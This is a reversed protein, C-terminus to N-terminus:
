RAGATGLSRAFDPPRVCRVHHERAAIGNRAPMRDAAHELDILSGDAFCGARTRGCVDSEPIGNAAEVRVGGLRAHTSEGGAAKGEVGRAAAARGAFALSHLANFHTEQRIHLHKAVFAAAFAEIRFGQTNQELAPIDALYERHADFVRQWEECRNAADMM